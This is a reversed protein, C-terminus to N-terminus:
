HSALIRRREALRFQGALRTSARHFARSIRAHWTPSPAPAVGTARGFQISAVEPDSAASRNCTRLVPCPPESAVTCAFLAAAGRQERRAVQVMRM